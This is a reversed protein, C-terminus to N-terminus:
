LYGYRFGYVSPTGHHRRNQRDIKVNAAIKKANLAFIEAYLKM